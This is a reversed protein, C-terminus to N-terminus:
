LPLGKLCLLAVGGIAVLGLWFIQMPDFRLAGQAGVIGVGVWLAAFLGVGAVIYLETASSIGGERLVYLALGVLAASGAAARIQSKNQLPLARWRMFGRPLRSLARLLGALLILPIRIALYLLAAGFLILLLPSM